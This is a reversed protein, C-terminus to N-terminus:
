EVRTLYSHDIRGKLIPVNREKSVNYIIWRSLNKEWFLPIMLQSSGQINSINTSRNNTDWAENIQCSSRVCKTDEAHIYADYDSVIDPTGAFSSFNAAM